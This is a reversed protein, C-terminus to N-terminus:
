QSYWSSLWKKFWGLMALSFRNCSWLFRVKWFINIQFSSKSSTWFLIITTQAAAALMGFVESAGITSNAPGSKWPSVWPLYFYLLRWSGRHGLSMYHWKRPLYKCGRVKPHAHIVQRSLFTDCPHRLVSALRLIWVFICCRTSLKASLPFFVHYKVIASLKFDSGELALFFLSPIINNALFFFYINVIVNFHLRNSIIVGLHAFQQSWGFFQVVEEVGSASTIVPLGM